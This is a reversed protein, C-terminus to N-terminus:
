FRLRGGRQVSFAARLKPLLNSPCIGRGLPLEVSPIM